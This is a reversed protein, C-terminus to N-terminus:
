GAAIFGLILGLIVFPSIALMILIGIIRIGIKILGVWFPDDANISALRNWWNLTDAAKDLMKDSTNQKKDKPPTKDNEM